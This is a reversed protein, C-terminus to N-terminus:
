LRIPDEATPLKGYRLVGLTCGLAGLALVSSTMTGGVLPMSLGVIPFTGLGMLMPYVFQISLIAVLGCVFAKSYTLNVRQIKHYLHALLWTIM